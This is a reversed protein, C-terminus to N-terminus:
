MDNLAALKPLVYWVVHTFHPKRNGTCLSDPHNSWAWGATKEGTSVFPPPVRSFPSWHAVEVGSLSSLSGTLKSPPRTLAHSPPWLGAGRSFLVEQELATCVSPCTFTLRRHVHLFDVWYFRIESKLTVWLKVGAPSRRGQNLVGCVAVDLINTGSRPCM